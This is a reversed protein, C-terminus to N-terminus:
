KVVATFFCDASGVTKTAATSSNSVAIGTAFPLGTHPTDFSFNSTAPVTFVAIPVTTDAPVTASNFLQIFQASTKSNYGIIQVLTGAGAKLVHSAELASSSVVTGTGVWQNAATAAGTTNTAITALTQLQRKTLAIGSFTGTDTTAATDAKAGLTIDAGDAVTVAGGGGGGGGGGNVDYVELSFTGDANDHLKLPALLNNDSRYISYDKGGVDASHATACLLFYFTSLLFLIASPARFNEVKAKRSKVKKLKMKSMQTQM